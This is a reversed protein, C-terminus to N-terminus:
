WNGMGNVPQCLIRPRRRLRRRSPRWRLRWRWRWRRIVPCSFAPVTASSATLYSSLCRGHVATNCSSANMALCVRLYGNSYQSYIWISIRIFILLEKLQSPSCPFATSPPFAADNIKNSMLDNLQWDIEDRETEGSRKEARRRRRRRRWRIRCRHQLDITEARTSNRRTRQPSVCEDITKPMNRKRRTEKRAM